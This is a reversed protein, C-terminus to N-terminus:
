IATVSAAGNRCFAAASLVSGYKVASVSAAKSTAGYVRSSAGKRVAADRAAAAARGKRRDRGARRSWARTNGRASSKLRPAAARGAHLAERLEEKTPPVIFYQDPRGDNKQVARTPEIQCGDGRDGQEKDHQEQRESNNIANAGGRACGIQFNKAQSWRPSRAM